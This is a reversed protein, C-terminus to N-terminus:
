RLRWLGLGQLWTPADDSLWRRAAAQGRLHADLFATSVSAIALDHEAKGHRPAPTGDRAALVADNSANPNGGAAAEGGGKGRGKGGSGGGPAGGGGGEGGAGGRASGRGEGRRAHETGAGRANGGPADRPEVLMGALRLHSVGDLVLLAKDGEPMWDFPHRRLEPSRVWNTPDGDQSGTISLVPPAIGAFREARDQGPGVMPSLLVVARVEAGLGAPATGPEREGALAMAAQAGLDYGAVALHRFDLRACAPDGAAARSRAEALVAALRALRQPLAASRQQALRQFEAARALESTWAGADEDLAQVSLVAYGARAWAQRWVAGAQETEGLGPLYLVVPLAQGQAPLTLAVPQRHGDVMWWQVSLQSTQSAGPRYAHEATALTQARAQQQERQAAQPRQPGACGALGAGLGALLCLQLGLRVALPAAPNSAHTFPLARITM